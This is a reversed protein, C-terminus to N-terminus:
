CISKMRRFEKDKKNGHAATVTTKASKKTEEETMDDISTYQGNSMMLLSLRYTYELRDRHTPHVPLKKVLVRRARGTVLNSALRKWCGVSSEMCEDIRLKVQVREIGWLAELPLLFTTGFTSILLFRLQKVKSLSNAFTTILDKTYHDFSKHGSLGEIGYLYCKRIRKLNPHFGNRKPGPLRLDFSFINESFFIESEETWIQHNVLLFGLNKKLQPTPQPRVRYEYSCYCGQNAENCPDHCYIYLPEDNVLVIRYVMNRIEPPLELFPFVSQCIFSSSQGSAKAIVSEPDESDLADHESPTLGAKEPM